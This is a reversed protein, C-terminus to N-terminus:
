SIPSLSFNLEDTSIKNRSQLKRISVASTEENCCNEAVSPINPKQINLVRWYLTCSENVHQLHRRLAFHLVKDQTVTGRKDRQHGSLADRGRSTLWSHHSRHWFTVTSGARQPLRVQSTKGYMCELGPEALATLWHFLFPLHNAASGSDASKHDEWLVLSLKLLFVKQM